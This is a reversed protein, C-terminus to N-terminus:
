LFLKSRWGESFIHCRTKLATRPQKCCREPLDQLLVPIMHMPASCGIVHSHLMLLLKGKTNEQGTKTCLCPWENAWWSSSKM